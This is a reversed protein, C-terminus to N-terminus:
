QTKTTISRRALLRIVKQISQSIRFSVSFYEIGMMGWLRDVFMAWNADFTNRFLPNANDVTPNNPRALWNPVNVSV